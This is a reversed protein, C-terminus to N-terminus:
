KRVGVTLAEHEVPAEATNDAGPTGRGAATPHAAGRRWISSRRPCSRFRVAITAGAANSATVTCQAARDRLKRTIRLKPGSAGKKAKGNVVWGYSYRSPRNSWRGRSCVLKSGFRRV